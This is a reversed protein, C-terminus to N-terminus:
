LRFLFIIVSIANIEVIFGHDTFLNTFWVFGILDITVLLVIGCIVLAIKLEQIITVALFVVAIGLLMNEIAVSRIYGYQDYYVYFLSYPYASLNPDSKLLPKMVYDMAMRTERASRIYDASNRLPKTM